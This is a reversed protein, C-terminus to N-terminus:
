DEKPKIVETLKIVDIKSEITGSHEVKEVYLCKIKNIEKTIELQLKREKHRKADELQEELVSLQEELAGVAWDKQIEAIQKRAEQVLEYAYSQAYGFESMCFKVMSNTSMSKEIRARVLADIINSRDYGM